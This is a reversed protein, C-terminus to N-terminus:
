IGDQVQRHKLEATFKAPLLVSNRGEHLKPSIESDDGM